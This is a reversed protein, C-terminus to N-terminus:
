ILYNELFSYNVLIYNNDNPFLIFLQNEQAFEIVAKRVGSWKWDDGALLLQEKKMKPYWAKLDSMASDYDHAADLYLGDISDDEFQKSVEESSGRITNIHEKIPKTYKLYQEYLYDPNTALQPIYDQSKPDRHEESGAFTDIAYIKGSKKHNLSSITFYALSRGMYTGVEVYVYDNDPINSLVTNLTKTGFFWGPIQQFFHPLLTTKKTNKKKRPGKYFTLPIM